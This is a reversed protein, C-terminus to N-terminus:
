NIPESKNSNILKTQIYKFFFFASIRAIALAAAAILFWAEGNLTYAFYFLGSAILNAITTIYRSFKLNKAVKDEM